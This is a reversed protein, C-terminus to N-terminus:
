LAWAGGVEDYNICGIYEGPIQDMKLAQTAGIESTFYGLLTLQKFSEFFNRASFASGQVAEGENAMKSALDEDQAGTEVNAVDELIADMQEETLKHFAQNHKKSARAKLDDLGADFYLGSRPPRM